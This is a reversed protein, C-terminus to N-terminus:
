RIRLSDTVCRRSARIDPEGQLDVNEVGLNKCDMGWWKYLHDKGFKKRKKEHFGSLKLDKLKSYAEIRSKQNDVVVFSWQLYAPQNTLATATWTQTVREVFHFFIVFSHYNKRM